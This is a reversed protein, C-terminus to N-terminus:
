DRPAPRGFPCGGVGRRIFSLGSLRCNMLYHDTWSVPEIVIDGVVLDGQEPCFRLDLMHEGQHMPALVIIQNCLPIYVSYLSFELFM